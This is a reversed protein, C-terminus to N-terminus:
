SQENLQKDKPIRLIFNTIEASNVKLTAGLQDTLTQILNMGLSTSSEIDFDQPLGEGNDQIQLEVWDAEEYASVTIWGETRDNFAHKFSNTLIENLILGLPLAQDMTLNAPEVDVHMDISKKPDNFTSRITEALRKIYDPLQVYSFLDTQYLQEHVLAMSHIRSQSDQLSRYSQQDPTNEKQLELLGVIIALNNKVRHHIEALLVDKEELSQQLQQEARKRETLDVYLGFLAINKGEVEVPIIGVLVPMERGDKSFRKTEFQFSEGKWARNVLSSYGTLESEPILFDIAKKGVIEDESYGFMKEFGPNVEQIIENKDEMILGIPSNHFLQQFLELNRRILKKRREREIVRGLQTGIVSMKKLLLIDRSVISPSYFELVGAVKKDAMVPFAFATHIDVNHDSGDEDEREINTQWTPEGTQMVEQIMQDNPSFHTQNIYDEVNNINESQEIHWIDNTSVTTTEGNETPLYAHGLPWHMFACIEEISRRLANPVEKAENYIMTLKQLLDTFKIEDELKDQAKKFRTIDRVVALIKTEDKEELPGLMIDVPFRTGDKRLAFLDLNNSKPRWPVDIIYDNFSNRYGKRYAQPMLMEIPKGILEGREYGFIEHSTNNSFVINHNEDVVLIADPLSELLKEYRRKNKRIQHKIQLRNDINEFSVMRHHSAGTPDEIVNAYTMAKFPIGDSKQATLQGRFSEGNELKRDALALRKPQDELFSTILQGVVRQDSDYGWMQLWASNAYTIENECNMFVIGNASSEIVEHKFWEQKKQHRLPTVDRLITLHEGPRINSVARYEVYLPAGQKTQMIFDGEDAKNELFTDWRQKGYSQIPKYFLDTIKRSHLEKYTYGLKQRAVENAHILQGENNVTIIMDFAKDFIHEIVPNQGHHPSRTSPCLEKVSVLRLSHDKYQVENIHFEALLSNGDPLEIYKYEFESKDPLLDPPAPRTFENIHQGTISSSHIYHDSFARNVEVVKEHEDMFFLAVPHEEFLMTTESIMTQVVKDSKAMHNAYM